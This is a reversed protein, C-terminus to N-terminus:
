LLSLKWLEPYIEPSPKAHERLRSMRKLLEVMKQLTKLSQTWLHNFIQNNM